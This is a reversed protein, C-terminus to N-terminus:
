ALCHALAIPEWYHGAPPKAAPVRRIIGQWPGPPGTGPVSARGHSDAQENGARGPVQIGTKGGLATDPPGQGGPLLNHPHKEMGLAHFVRDNLQMAAAVRAASVPEAKAGM